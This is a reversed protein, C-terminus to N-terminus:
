ACSGTVQHRGAEVPLSSSKLDSFMDRLGNLMTWFEVNTVYANFQLLQLFKAELCNLESVEIGGCRAYYDQKHTEDDTFKIAVVVAALLLKHASQHAVLHPFNNKIKYLYFAANVFAAPSCHMFSAMRSAFDSLSIPPCHPIHFPNNEATSQVFSSCLSELFSSLLTASEESSINPNAHVITQM